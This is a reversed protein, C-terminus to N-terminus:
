DSREEPAADVSENSCSTQDGAEAARRARMRELQARLREPLQNGTREGAAVIASASDLRRAERQRDAARRDAVALGLAPQFDSRLVSAVLAACYRIPNRIQKSTMCGTLEDLVQQANDDTLGAVLKELEQRQAQSVMSPFCLQSCGGRHAQKVRAAAGVAFAPQPPTQYVVPGTTTEQEGNVLPPPVPSCAGQDHTFVRGTMKVGEGTLNVPHDMALRYGNSTCSGDARFRREIVLLKRSVLLRIMRRVTSASVECNDALYAHSPFCAGDRDALEALARLLGNARGARVTRVWKLAEVSV